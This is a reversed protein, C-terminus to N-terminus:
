IQLANMIQTLCGPWNKDTTDLLLSSLTTEQQFRKLREQQETYYAAKEETTGPAGKKWGGKRYKSTAEIREKINNDDITLLVLLTQGLKQLLSEISSFDKLTARTRFAHTFHFRDVILYGVTEKRWQTLLGTLHKLALNPDRNDILSM